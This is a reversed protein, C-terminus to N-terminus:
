DQNRSETEDKEGKAGDESGEEQETGPEQGAMSELLFAILTPWDRFYRVDGSLVCRVQGRWETQGQELEEPWLRLTFLQSPQRIHSEQM